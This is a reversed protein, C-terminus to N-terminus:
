GHNIECRLLSGGKMSRRRHVAACNQCELGPNEFHVLIEREAGQWCGKKQNAQCKQAGASRM